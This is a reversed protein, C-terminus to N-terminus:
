AGTPCKRDMLKMACECLNDVTFGYERLVVEGPASAGFRDVGIVDGGDGVYKRWGQTAGAEVALRARVLPPLVLDRYTQGSNAKEVADVSLFRIANICLGDLQAPDPSSANISSM